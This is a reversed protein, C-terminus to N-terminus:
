QGKPGIEQDRNGRVTSGTTSNTAMFREIRDSLLVKQIMKKPTMFGSSGSEQPFQHATRNTNTTNTNFLLLYMNLEPECLKQQM